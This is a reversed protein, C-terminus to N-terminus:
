SMLKLLVFSIFKVVPRKVADYVRKKELKSNAANREVITSRYSIM